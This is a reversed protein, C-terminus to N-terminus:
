VVRIYGIQDKLFDLLNLFLKLSKGIEKNLFSADSRLKTYHSAVTQKVLVM